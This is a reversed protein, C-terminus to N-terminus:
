TQRARRATWLGDGLSLWKFMASVFLTRSMKEMVAYYGARAAIGPLGHTFENGTKRQLRMVLYSRLDMEGLIPAYTIQAFGARRLMRDYEWNYYIHENGGYHGMAVPNAELQRFFWAKTRWPKLTPEILIVLGGAGLLTYANRLAAHPDDCHHLSSNFYVADFPGRVHEAMEEATSPVGTFSLGFKEAACSAIEINVKSPEVGTVAFGHRGLEMSSFGIGFGVDLVRGKAPLLRCVRRTQEAVVSKNSDLTWNELSACSRLHQLLEDRRSARIELERALGVSVDFATM